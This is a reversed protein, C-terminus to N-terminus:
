IRQSALSGDREPARAGRGPRPQPRMALIMAGSWAFTAADIVFAWGADVTGVLVGGIAPGLLASAFPKVFKALSNALVLEDPLVLDPM